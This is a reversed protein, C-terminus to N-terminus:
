NNLKMKEFDSRLQMADPDDPDLELIKDNTTLAESIDKLYFLAMAKNNLIGIDEPDIELAKNFVNLADAYKGQILFVNGKSNLTFIDDPNVSLGKDFIFYRKRM